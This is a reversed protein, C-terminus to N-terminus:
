LGAARCADLYEPSAKAAREALDCLRRARSAQTERSLLSTVADPKWLLAAAAALSVVFTGFGLGEAFSRVRKM